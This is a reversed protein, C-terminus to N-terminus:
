KKPRHRTLKLSYEGFHLAVENEMTPNFGLGELTEALAELLAKKDTDVKREKAKKQKPLESQEYRKIGKAKIEMEAVEEAEERTLPEGDAKAEAMIQLILKEKDM